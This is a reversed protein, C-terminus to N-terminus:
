GANTVEISPLHFFPSPKSLALLVSLVVAAWFAVGGFLVTVEDVFDPSDFFSYIIIWIIMVLSSGVVTLWTIITWSCIHRHM